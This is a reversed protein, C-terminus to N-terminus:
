IKKKYGKNATPHFGLSEYFGCADERVTETVLIIQTCGKSKARQELETYLAKGIGKNRCTSDVVMNELLLFPKCDGYLEECVVGMISGVLKEDEIACILIYAANSQLKVFKQKMKQIDSNEQWFHFYLKSLSEMDEIQLNRIIIM